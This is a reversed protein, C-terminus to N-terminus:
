QTCLGFHSGKYLLCQWSVYSNDTRGSSQLTRLLTSM